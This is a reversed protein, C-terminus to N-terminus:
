KFSDEVIQIEEETLDYLQYVLQDIQNELETTDISQEKYAIAAAVLNSILSLMEDNPKIIPLSEIPDKKIKPFTTKNDYYKKLWYFQLTKSNIIALLYRLFKINEVHLFINYVTNLTMIYPQVITGEPYVGIQRVVIRHKKYVSPDGGSKISDKSFDVFEASPECYYRKVNGGDIVPFYNDNMKTNSVFRKRDFTQIGFYSRGFSKLLESNMEIKRLVNKVHPKIDLELVFDGTEFEAQNHFLKEVQYLDQINNKYPSFELKNPVPQKGKSLMLILTDVSADEFVSTYFNIIKYISNALLLRRLETSHKNKLFTNPSIFSLMARDKMIKIGLEYFLAYTDIKYTATVFNRSYYNFVNQDGFSQVLIYPPNGIVVDFGIFDGDDSLVEPFEFRWEFANEYIKNSIIEDREKELKQLTEAAKAHKKKLDEGVTQKFATLNLIETGLTDALGRAESIKKRFPKDVESKFDKKIMQLSAMAAQKEAKSKSQRYKKVHEKYSRINWSDKKSKLIEKIDADIPFRSVLSNGCKINIDINPLTELEKYDPGKYYANKLLEIWLRLRCIKVSNPNIDVGFLCNEIITQKENFLTEQVRQSEKNGPNYEFIEGSHENTVLLEDNVVSMNYNTLLDGETDTLITLESKVALMENLASVLFHGSGVAPDCIRIQNFTQNLAKRAEKRGETAKKVYDTVDEHLENFTQCNWKYVDNFKQVVAKRIAERCMYMTIFGPTFFSGDKYGNIKEFILGLVSANIITKKELRVGGADEVGFDYADLFRFLYELTSIRERADLRKVGHGETLITKEYVPISQDDRLNSVILTNHELDTPEFLSSNLYPVKAFAQKVGDLRDGTQRALVKFFLTNLDDFSKIRESNLFAYSTDGKHYKILQGELLKLFLIRNVWTITLEMAVSYLREEMTAGYQSPRNLRSLKDLSDIEAIASEIFTGAHRKEKPLRGILKKGGEKSEALGLIHLLEHYFQKDLTNSDNTIPVKLLYHPSLLKYLALLQKDDELDDNVILQEYDRINFRVCPLDIQLEDLIKAVEDYFWTSSKKEKVANAHLNKIRTNNYILKDFDNVDIIYWELVNTIVLRKLDPNSKNVREDMFYWVLEQLAKKNPSGLTSMESVNKPRKAEIIVGVKSGANTGLHIVLDKKDRTNIENKGDYYTKLLFDRLYTKLHEETEDKPQADIVNIKDLLAMLNSKFVEMEDRTVRQKILRETAKKPDIITFKM